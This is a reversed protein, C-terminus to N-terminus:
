LQIQHAEVVEMLTAAPYTGRCLRDSKWCVIIDFLGQKADALMRQFGPRNKPGGVDQHHNVITLGM